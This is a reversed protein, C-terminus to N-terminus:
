ETIKNEKECRKSELDKKFNNEQTVRYYVSEYNAIMKKLSFFLEARKRVQTRDIKEIDLIAKAMEEPNNVLFGTIKDKVIEPVSGNPFAIIPTGCSMAEILVYGFAEQYQTPFILAKAKQIIPIKDELSLEGLYKITTGNIHPEIMEHWYGESAYSRGAIYLTKGAKRCADIALHVGKDKTIRGLFLVYDDPSENFSFLETDVGHYINAYWNLEPMQKRQTLSFSIYKEDKHKKLIPKMWEEIPSHISILTPINKELRSLFGTMINMHSHILDYKNRQADFYCDSLIGWQEYKALPEKSKDDYHFVSSKIKGKVNSDPHGYLTVFNNKDSFYNVLHAIHSYIAKNQEQSIPISSPAIQAIRLKENKM